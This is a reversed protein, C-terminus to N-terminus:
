VSHNSNPSAACPHERLPSCYTEPFRLVVDAQILFAVPEPYHPLTFCPACIPICTDRGDAKQVVPVRGLLYRRQAVLVMLLQALILRRRGFDVVTGSSQLIVPRASADLTAKEAAPLKYVTIGNLPRCFHRRRFPRLHASSFQHKFSQFM